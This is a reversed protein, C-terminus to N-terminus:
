EEWERYEGRGDDLLPPSTDALLPPENNLERYLPLVAQAFGSYMKVAQVDGQKAKEVIAQRVRLKTELQGARYADSLSDDDAFATMSVGM